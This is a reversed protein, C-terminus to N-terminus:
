LFTFFLLLPTGSPNNATTPSTWIYGSFNPPPATVYPVYPFGYSGYLPWQALARSTTILGIFILIFSCVTLYRLCIIKDARNNLM